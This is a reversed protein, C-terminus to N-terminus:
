VWLQGSGPLMGLDLDLQDLMEDINFAAVEDDYVNNDHNVSQLQCLTLWLLYKVDNTSVADGNIIDKAINNM